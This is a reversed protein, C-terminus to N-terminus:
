KKELLVTGQKQILDKIKTGALHLLYPLEVALHVADEAVDIQGAAQQGMAAVKFDLHADTWTDEVITIKDGFKERLLSTGKQLRRVAEERGLSHPVSVTLPAAM